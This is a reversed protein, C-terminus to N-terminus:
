NSTRKGYVKNRIGLIRLRDAEEALREKEKNLAAQLSEIDKFATWCGPNQCSKETHRVPYECWPCIYAGDEFYKTVERTDGNALSIQM